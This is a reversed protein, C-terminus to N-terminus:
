GTTVQELDQRTFSADAASAREFLVVGVLFVGTTRM